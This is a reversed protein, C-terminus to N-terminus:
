ACEHRRAADTERHVDVVRDWNPGAAVSRQSITKRGELCRSTPNAENSRRVDADNVELAGSGTSPGRCSHPGLRGVGVRGPRDLGDPLDRAADLLKDVDVRNRSPDLEAVHLAAEGGLLDRGVGLHRQRRRAAFGLELEQREHILRALLHPGLLEEPCSTVKEGGDVKEYSLIPVRM